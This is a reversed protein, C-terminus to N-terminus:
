SAPATPLAMRVTTGSGTGTRGDVTLTAGVTLARERMGRLGVGEAGGQGLGVGDDVVTLTVGDFAVMIESAGAHRNANSLAEQAVRYVAVQAAGDLAPLDDEVDCAIAVGDGARPVRRGPVLLDVTRMGAILRSLPALAGRLLVLDVVLLVLIGLALVVVQEAKPDADISAPTLVLAAGAVVLVAANLGFIRAFLSM